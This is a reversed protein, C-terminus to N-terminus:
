SFVEFCERGKFFFLNVFTTTYNAHVVYKIDPSVYCCAYYECGFLVKQAQIEVRTNTDDTIFAKYPGLTDKANEELLDSPAAGDPGLSFVLADWKLDETQTETSVKFLTYAMANMWMITNSEDVIAIATPAYELIPLWGEAAENHQFKTSKFHM